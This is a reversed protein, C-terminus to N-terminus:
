AFTAQSAVRALSTPEAPSMRAAVEVPAPAPEPAQVRQPLPRAAPAVMAIEVAGSVTRAAVAGADDQSAEISAAGSADAQPQDVSARLNAVVALMQQAAEDAASEEPHKARLRRAVRVREDEGSREVQATRDNQRSGHNQEIAEVREIRANREIPAHRERTNGARAAAAAERRLQAGIADSERATADQDHAIAIAHVTTVDDRATSGEGSTQTVEARSEESRPVNAIGREDLQMARVPKDDIAHVSQDTAHASDDPMAHVVSAREAEARDAGNLPRAGDARHAAHLHDVAEERVSATAAEATAHETEVSDPAAPSEEEADTEGASSPLYHVVTAVDGQSESARFREGAHSPVSLCCLISLLVFLFLFPLAPSSLLLTGATTGGTASGSQSRTGGM